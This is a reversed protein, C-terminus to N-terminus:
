LPAFGCDRKLFTWKKAKPPTTLVARQALATIEPRNTKFLWAVPKRTSSTLQFTIKTVSRFTPLYGHALRIQKRRLGHRFSMRVLNGILDRVRDEVRNERLLRAAADGALRHRLGTHHNDGALDRRIGHDLDLVDHTLGDELDTVVVRVFAEVAVRAGHQVAEALLRLVDGLADVALRRFLLAGAVLAEHEAVRRDLRVAEHRSRDDERVAQDLLLGFHALVALQRPQARVRLALARETVLVVLGDADVRDDQRRLVARVDRQFVELFGDHFLDDLRHQRRLPEVLFVCYWM